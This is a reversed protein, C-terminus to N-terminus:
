LQKVVVNEEGYLGKLRQVVKADPNLTVNKLSIYKGTSADFVAVQSTGPNLTSIRYIPNLKKEDFCDLKIYVRSAKGSIKESFTSNSILPTLKSLIIEPEEGDDASIRGEIMVANEESLEGAIKSYQKAFVIVVIEGIRDEVTIFAM